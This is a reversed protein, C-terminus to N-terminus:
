EQKQDCVDAALTHAGRQQHGIDKGRHANIALGLLHLKQLRHLQDRELEALVATGCVKGRQKYAPKIGPRMLDPIYVGTMVCGIQHPDVAGNFLQFGGAHHHASEIESGPLFAFRLQGRAIQVATPNANDLNLRGWLKRGKYEGEIIQFVLELYHGDKNKTEKMESATIVAVYKGAPIPEFGVTPEVERADFGSLNAM